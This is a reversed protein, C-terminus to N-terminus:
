AGAAEPQVADRPAQPRRRLARRAPRVAFPVLALAPLAGCLALTGADIDMEIRPYTQFGATGTALAAAGAAVVLAACALLAGAPGDATPAPKVRAGLSHGRLELTAAVDVARDLSGELLRRAM